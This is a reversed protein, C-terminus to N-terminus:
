RRDIDIKRARVRGRDVGEREGTGLLKTSTMLPVTDFAYDVFQTPRILPM